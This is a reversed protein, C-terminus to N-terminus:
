SIIPTPVGEGLDTIADKLFAIADQADLASIQEYLAQAIQFETNLYFDRSIEVNFTLIVPFTARITPMTEGTAFNVRTLPGTPLCYGLFVSKLM